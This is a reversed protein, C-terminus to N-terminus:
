FPWTNNIIDNFKWKIRNIWSTNEWEKQLADNYRRRSEIIKESSIYEVDYSLKSEFNMNEVNKTLEKPSTQELNFELGYNEVIKALELNLESKNNEIIKALEKLNLQELNIQSLENNSSM